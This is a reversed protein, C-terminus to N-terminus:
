RWIRVQPYCWSLLQTDSLGGLDISHFLSAPPLPPLDNTAPLPTWTQIEFTGWARPVAEEQKSGPEVEKWSPMLGLQRPGWLVSVETAGPSDHFCWRSIVGFLLTLGPLLLSSGRKRPLCTVQLAPRTALPQPPSRLGPPNPQLSLPPPPPCAPRAGVAWTIRGWALREPNRPQLQLQGAQAGRHWASSESHPFPSSPQIGAGEGQERPVRPPSPLGLVLCLSAGQSQGLGAQGQWGQAM